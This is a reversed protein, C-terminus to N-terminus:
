VAWSQAGTAMILASLSLAPYVQGDVGVVAPVNRIAGDNDVLPSIHGKAVPAFVPANAIFSQANHVQPTCALGSVPHSLEGTRIDQASQLVPVQSLVANTQQLATLFQADGPRAEPFVIDYLQLQVGADTLAQALRAMTERPWPWPGLAELSKEDIAVVNIREELTTDPNLRWGFAGVRAEFTELAGRLALNCVFTL